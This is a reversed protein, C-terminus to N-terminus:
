KKKRMILPQISIFEKPSLKVSSLDEMPIYTVDVDVNADMMERQERFFAQANEKLIKFHGNDDVKVKGDKDKEAYKEILENEKKTLVDFPIRISEINKAIKVASNIPMEQNGIKELVKYMDVLKEVQIKM